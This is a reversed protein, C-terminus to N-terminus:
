AKLLEVGEVTIRKLEDLSARQGLFVAHHYHEVVRELARGVTAVVVLHYAGEPYSRVTQLVAAQVADGM